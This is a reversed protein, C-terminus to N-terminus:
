EKTDGETPPTPLPTEKALCWRCLYIDVDYENEELVFTVDARDYTLGCGACTETSLDHTAEGPKAPFRGRMMPGKM